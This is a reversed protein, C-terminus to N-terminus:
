PRRKKRPKGPPTRERIAAAEEKPIALVRRMTDLFLADTTGRPLEAKRKGM